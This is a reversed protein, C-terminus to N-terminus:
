TRRWGERVARKVPEALAEGWPIPIVLTQGDQRPPTWIGHKGLEARWDDSRDVRFWLKSNPITPHAQLRGNVHGPRQIRLPGNGTGSDDAEIHSDIERLADILRRLERPGDMRNTRATPSCGAAHFGPVSAEVDFAAKAVRADLKGSEEKAADITVVEGTKRDILQKAEIAVVYRAVLGDNQKDSGVGHQVEDSDPLLVTDQRADLIEAVSSVIQERSRNADLAQEVVNRIISKTRHKSWPHECYYNSTPSGVVVSSIRWRSREFRAAPNDFEQPLQTLIGTARRYAVGVGAGVGSSRRCEEILAVWVRATGDLVARYGDDAHFDAWHGDPIFTKPYPMPHDDAFASLLVM